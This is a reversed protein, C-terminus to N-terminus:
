ATPYRLRGIFRALSFREPATRGFRAKLKEFRMVGAMRRDFFARTDSQGESQDTLLAMVTAGYVAGLIGRKSYHNLDTATDGAAHWIADAARWNLRAALSLNSPLALVALARRLAEIDNSVITLRARVLATIRARVSMTALTEASCDALMARDVHAFWADIMDTTGGPFALRAVSQDVGCAMASTDLATMTWGDFAANSPLAAALQARIEDLTPDTVTVPGEICVGVSQLIPVSLAYTLRACAANIYAGRWREVIGHPIEAKPAVLTEQHQLKSSMGM